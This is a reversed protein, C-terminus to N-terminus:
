DDPNSDNDVEKMGCLTVADRMWEASAEIWNALKLANAADYCSLDNTCNAVDRYLEEMLPPASDLCPKVTHVIEIPPRVPRKCFTCCGGMLLSLVILSRVIM